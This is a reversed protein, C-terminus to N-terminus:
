GVPEDVDAFLEWNGIHLRRVLQWFFSETAALNPHTM